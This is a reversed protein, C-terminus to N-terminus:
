AHHVVAQSTSSSFLWCVGGLVVMGMAIAQVPTVVHFLVAADTYSGSFPALIFRLVGDAFLATGLVEAPRGSRRMLVVLVAALAFHGLAAYLQV